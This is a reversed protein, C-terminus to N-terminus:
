VTPRSWEKESERDALWIGTREDEGNLAVGDWKLWRCHISLSDVILSSM